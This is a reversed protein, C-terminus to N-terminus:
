TEMTGLWTRIASFPRNGQMAGPPPEETRGLWRDANKLCLRRFFVLAALYGGFNLVVPVWIFDGFERRLFGADTENWFLISAPSLLMSCTLIRARPESPSHQWAISLPIVVFIFPVVCWGVIAAMSGIMARAQTRVKLGIALSLWAVLPLYIALTLISCALYASASFHEQMWYANRSAVERVCSEAVVITALPALAVFILRRVSRFKQLVIERGTLPSTCLVDLTQHSREGAILSASHVSIVLVALAWFIFMMLTVLLRPIQSYQNHSVFEAAVLVACFLLLPIETFFLIRVLYRSRGLARKTLERWAIPEDAPLLSTDTASATGAVTGAEAKIGAVSRRAFRGDLIKFFELLFNRPAVFARSVVCKRALVLCLGSMGLVIVSHAILPWTGLGGFSGLVGFLPPGFFPFMGLLITSESISSGFLHEVLANFDLGLLYGVLYLFMWTVAPGFFMLFAVVYTTVFAAVTTRFFASCALALTGMQIVALVLMWIGTWLLRSSIGGLSYAFGLLPLSLLLFCIMPVLRGLLKEFLITWPGLRTILLLQLSDREKEQTLVGCTIAPMFLYVGAFQLFVLANFMDRGRGLVALPSTAGAQLEDYFILFAVFFLLCAYGVRVLYTRKRAAQEILEKELLPLGLHTPFRTLNM